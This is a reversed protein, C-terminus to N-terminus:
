LLNEIFLKILFASKALNKHKKNEIKTHSNDWSDNTM